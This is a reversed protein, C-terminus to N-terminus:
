FFVYIVFKKLGEMGLFIKIFDECRILNQGLYLVSFLDRERLFQFYKEVIKQYVSNSVMFFDVVVRIRLEKYM